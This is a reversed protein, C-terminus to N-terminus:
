RCTNVINLYLILLHNARVVQAQSVTKVNRTGTDRIAKTM